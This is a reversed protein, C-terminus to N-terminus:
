VSTATLSRAILAIEPDRRPPGARGGRLYRAFADAHCISVVLTAAARCDADPRITGLEREALLYREVIAAPDDVMEARAMEARIATLLETDSFSAALLPVLEGLVRAARRTFLVLNDAVSAHGARTSLDAVGRILDRAYEMIAKALLDVRDDFYSYLTGGSVGAEAAIARTSAGALGNAQIVRCAAALILSRVAEPKGGTAAQVGPSLPRPM